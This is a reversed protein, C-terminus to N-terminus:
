KAKPNAHAEPNAMVLYLPRNRGQRERGAEQITVTRPLWQEELARLCQVVVNQGGCTVAFTGRQENWCRLLAYVSLGMDSYDSRLFQVDRLEFLEGLLEEAKIAETVSFLEEPTQAQMLRLAFEKALEEPDTYEPVYGSLVAERVQALPVLQTSTTAEM